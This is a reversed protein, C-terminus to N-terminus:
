INKDNIDEDGNINNDFDFELDTNFRENSSVGLDTTV